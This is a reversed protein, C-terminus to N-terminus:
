IEPNALLAFSQRLDRPEEDQQGYSGFNTDLQGSGQPRGSREPHEWTQTDYGQRSRNPSKPM